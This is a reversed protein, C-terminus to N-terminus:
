PPNAEAQRQSHILKGYQTLTMPHKREHLLGLCYMALGLIAAAEQPIPDGEHAIPYSDQVRDIFQDMEEQRVTCNDLALRSLM